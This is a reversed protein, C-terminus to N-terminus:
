VRYSLTQTQKPPKNKKKIQKWHITAASPIYQARLTSQIHLFGSYM